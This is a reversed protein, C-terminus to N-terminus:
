KNLFLYCFLGSIGQKLLLEMKVGNNANHTLAIVKTQVTDPNVQFTYLLDMNDWECEVSITNLTNDAVKM